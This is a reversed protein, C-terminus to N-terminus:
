GATGAPDIVIGTLRLWIRKTQIQAEWIDKKTRLDLDIVWEGEELEQGTTLSTIANAMADIEDLSGLLNIDVTLNHVPTPGSTNVRVRDASIIWACLKVGQRKITDAMQYPVTGHFIRCDEPLADKLLLGIASYLGQTTQSQQM